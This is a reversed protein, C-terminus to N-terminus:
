QVELLIRKRRAALKGGNKQARAQIRAYVCLMEPLAQSGDHAKTHLM